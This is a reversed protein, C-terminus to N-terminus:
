SNLFSFDSSQLRVRYTLRLYIKKLESYDCTKIEINVNRFFYHLGRLDKICFKAYLFGKLETLEKPHNETIFIHDVYVAM